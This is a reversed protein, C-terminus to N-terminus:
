QEDINYSTIRIKPTCKCGVHVYSRWHMFRRVSLQSVLSLPGRGLGVLGSAQPSQRGGASSDSCGFVVGHFLNGGVVLNDMGLTGKTVANGSYRYTYECANDDDQDDRCRSYLYM